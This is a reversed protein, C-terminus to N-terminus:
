DILKVPSATTCPPKSLAARDVLIKYKEKGYRFWSIM